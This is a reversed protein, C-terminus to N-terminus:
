RRAVVVSERTPQIRLHSVRDSRISLFALERLGFHDVVGGVVVEASRRPVTAIDELRQATGGVLEVPNVSALTTRLM